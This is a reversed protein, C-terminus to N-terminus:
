MGANVMANPMVIMGGGVMDGLVFVSAMAWHLGHTNEHKESSGMDIQQADAKKPPM